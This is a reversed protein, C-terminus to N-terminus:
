VFPLFDDDMDSPTFFASSVQRDKGTSEDEGLNVPTRLGLQSLAKVPIFICEFYPFHIPKLQEIVRTRGDFLFVAKWTFMKGFKSNKEYNRALPDRPQPQLSRKKALYRVSASPAFHRIAM